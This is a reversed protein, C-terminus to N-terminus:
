SRNRRDRWAIWDGLPSLDYGSRGDFSLTILGAGAAVYDDGTEPKL